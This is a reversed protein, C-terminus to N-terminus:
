KPAGITKGTKNNILSWVLAVVPAVLGSISTLLDQSIVGKAVFAGGLAALITRIIGTVQDSNM